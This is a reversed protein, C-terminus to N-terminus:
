AAKEKAILELVKALTTFQGQNFTQNFNFGYQPLEITTLEECIGDEQTDDSTVYRKKRIKAPITAKM